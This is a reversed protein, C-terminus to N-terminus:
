VSTKAWKAKDEMKMATTEAKPVQTPPRQGREKQIYHDIFGVTDNIHAVLPAKAQDYFGKALLDFVRERADMSEFTLTAIRAFFYQFKALATIISDYFHIIWSNCTSAV